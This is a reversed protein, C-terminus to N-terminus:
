KLTFVLIIKEFLVVSREGVQLYCFEHGNISIGNYREPDRGTVSSHEISIQSPFDLIFQVRVFTDSIGKKILLPCVTRRKLGENSSNRDCM